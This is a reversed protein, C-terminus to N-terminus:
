EKTNVAKLEISRVAEFGIEGNPGRIMEGMHMEEIRFVPTDSEDLGLVVKAGKPSTYVLYKVPPAFDPMDTVREGETWTAGSEDLIRKEFIVDVNAQEGASTFGEIAPMPEGVHEVDVAIFQANGNTGVTSVTFPADKEYEEKSLARLDPAAYAEKLADMMDAKMYAELQARLDPSLAVARAMAREAVEQAEAVSSPTMSFSTLVLAALVALAGTPILIRSMRSIDVLQYPSLGHKQAHVSLLAARLMRKHASSDVATAGRRALIHQLQEETM